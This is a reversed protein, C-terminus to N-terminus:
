KALFRSALNSRVQSMYLSIQYQHKIMNFIEESGQSAEQALSDEVNNNTANSAHEKPAAFLMERKVEALAASKKMPSKFCLRFGTLQSPKRKKFKNSGSEMSPEIAAARWWKQGTCYVQENSRSQQSEDQLKLLELDEVTVWTSLQCLAYVGHRAKEVAYLCSPAESEVILISPTTFQQEKSLGAELVPIQASFLRAGQSSRTGEENNLFALPLCSRSTLLRPM